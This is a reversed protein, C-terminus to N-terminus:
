FSYLYPNRRYQDYNASYFVFLISNLRQDKKIKRLLQFGDMRPMLIDSIILDPSNTALRDLAEQGDAAEIVEFDKDELYYKLLKRDDPRDEVILGKRKM